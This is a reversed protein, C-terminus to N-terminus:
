ETGRRRRMVLGALAVGMWVAAGPEPIVTFGEFAGIDYGSGVLRQRGNRDLLVDPYLGAPIADIGISGPLLNFNGNLADIFTPTGNLSNVDNGTMAVWQALTLRVGSGPLRFWANAMLNYNSVLQDLNTMTFSFETGPSAFVSSSLDLTAGANAFAVLSGWGPNSPDITVTAFELRANPGSVVVPSAYSSVYRYRDILVNRAVADEGLSLSANDGRLTAGDLMGGAGVGIGGNITTLNYGTTKEKLILSTGRAVINRLTIQGIGEGHSYWGPNEAGVNEIVVDEWLSTHGSFRNDSYSVLATAGGFGQDPMTLTAYLGKGVFGTSNIVGFHHKGARYAESNEIRVNEGDQVRFAYGRNYFATEDAALDRFVINSKFNNFVADDRTVATIRRPDSSITGGTNVILTQSTQDRWWSGPTSSVHARNVAANSSGTVLESSRLFVGDALVAGVQVPAAIQGAVSGGGVGVFGAKNLIDSGYFRPKAGNGYAGYVIPAAATGSSSASLRGRWEGGREFLV